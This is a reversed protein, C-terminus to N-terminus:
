ACGCGGTGKSDNRVNGDWGEPIPEAPRANMAAFPDAAPYLRLPCGIVGAHEDISRGDVACSASFNGCVRLAKCGHCKALNGLKVSLEIATAL